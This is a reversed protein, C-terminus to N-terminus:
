FAEPEFGLKSVKESPFNCSMYRLIGQITRANENKIRYLSRDILKLIERVSLLM